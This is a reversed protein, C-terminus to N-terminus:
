MGDLCLEHERECFTDQYGTIVRHVLALPYKDHGAPVPTHTTFICKPRVLHMLEPTIIHSTQEYAMDWAQKSLAYALELTLLAAHGENM